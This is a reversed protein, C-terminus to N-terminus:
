DNRQQALLGELVYKPVQVDACSIKTKSYDYKDGHVEKAQRIFNQTVGECHVCNDGVCPPFNVLKMNEGKLIIPQIHAVSNNRAVNKSVM